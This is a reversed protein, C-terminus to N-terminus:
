QGVQSKTLSCFSQCDALNEFRNENGGCNQVGFQYCQQTTADFYYRILLQDDSDNTDDDVTNDSEPDFSACLGSEPPLYCISPYHQVATFVPPDPLYHSTSEIILVSLLLTFIYLLM